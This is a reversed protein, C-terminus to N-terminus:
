TRDSPPGPDKPHDRGMRRPLGRSPAQSRAPSSARLRGARPPPQALAEALAPDRGYIDARFETERDAWSTWYLIHVPVPESLLITTEADLTAAAAVRDTTWRENGRLLYEALEFPREIRICGSSFDRRAPLFLERLPTDHLYVNYRNPFMFKIRGLMNKEGPEQRFRYPFRDPGLNKWDVTGPDIEREDAGWGTFVRFGHEALYLPDKQLAPLIDRVAIGRPVQWYPSVVLYTMVASFIPTRRYPRGVVAPMRMIESEDEIVRLEFAPVNVIVYRRGLGRALWRWRELNLAIQRARDTASVNLERLTAPGVIGDVALGHRRQFTKVARELTLDFASSDLRQFSPDLDATVALRHRLQSVREGAAGVELPPGATLTGWGGHAALQRYHALAERLRLYGPASPAMGELAARVDGRNLSEDLATALATDTPSARWDPVLRDPDVRGAHLHAAYVLFADSAVLELDV